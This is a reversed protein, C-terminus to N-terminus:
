DVEYDALWGISVERGGEVPAVVAAFRGAEDSDGRVDAATVGALARAVDDADAWLQDDLRPGQDVVYRAVGGITARCQRPEDIRTVQVAVRRAGGIGGRTATYAPPVGPLLLTPARAEIAAELATVIDDATAM